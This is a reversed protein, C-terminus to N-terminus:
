LPTPDEVFRVKGVGYRMADLELLMEDDTALRCKCAPNLFVAFWGLAIDQRLAPRIQVQYDAGAVTGLSAVRYLHEGLQFHYGALIASTRNITIVTAGANANAAVQGNDEGGSYEGILPVLVPTAGGDLLGSVWDWTRLDHDNTIAIGEYQITWAHAPVSVRQTFGSASVTGATTRPALHRVVKAPRLASVPWLLTM